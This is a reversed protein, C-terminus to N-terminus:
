FPPRHCRGIQVGDGGDGGDAEGIMELAAVTELVTQREIRGATEHQGPLAALRV